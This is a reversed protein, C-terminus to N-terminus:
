WRRWGATRCCRKRPMRTMADFGGDGAVLSAALGAPASASAAIYGSGGGASMSLSSLRAKTHLSTPSEAAPSRASRYVTTNAIAPPNTQATTDSPHHAQSPSQLNHLHPPTNAPNAEHTDPVAQTRTSHPTPLLKNQPQANTTELNDEELPQKTPSPTPNGRSPTTPPSPSTAVFPLFPPYITTSEYSTMTLDTSSPTKKATHDQGLFEPPVSPYRTSRDPPALDDLRYRNNFKLAKGVLGMNTMNRITMEDATWHGELGANGLQALSVLNINARPNFLVDDLLLINGSNFRLPVTGSYDCALRSITGPCSEYVSHVSSFVSSDKTVHRPAASDLLWEQSSSTTPPISVAHNYLTYAGAAAVLLTIINKSNVHKGLFQLARRGLKRTKSIRGGGPKGSLTSLPANKRARHRSTPSKQAVHRSNKTKGRPCDDYMALASSGEFLPLDTSPSHNGIHDNAQITPESTLSMAHYGNDDVPDPVNTSVRITREQLYEDEMGTNPSVYPRPLSELADNLHTDAQVLSDSATKMADTRDNNILDADGLVYTSQDNAQDTAGHEDAPVASTEKTSLSEEEINTELPVIDHNSQTHEPTFSDNEGYIQARGVEPSSPGPSDVTIREPHLVALDVANIEPDLESSGGKISSGLGSDDTNFTIQSLPSSTDLESKTPQRAVDIPLSDEIQQQLANAVGQPKGATSTTQYDKPQYTSRLWDGEHGTRRRHRTFAYAATYGTGCSCYFPLADPERDPGLESAALFKSNHRYAQKHREYHDVRTFSRGCECHLTKAYKKVRRHSSRHPSMNTTPSIRDQLIREKHHTTQPTFVKTINNDSRSSSPGQIYTCDHFKLAVHFLSAHSVSGANYQMIRTLSLM